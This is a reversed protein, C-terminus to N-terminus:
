EMLCFHYFSCPGWAKGKKGWVTNLAITLLEQSFMTAAEWSNLTAFGSFSLHTLSESLSLTSSLIAMFLIM